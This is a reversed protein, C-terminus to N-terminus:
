SPYKPYVIMDYSMWKVLMLIVSALLIFFALWIMVVYPSTGGLKGFFSKPKEAEDEDSDDESEGGEGGAYESESLPRLATDPVSGTRM